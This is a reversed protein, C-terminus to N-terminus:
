LKEGKEFYRSLLEKDCYYPGCMDNEHTKIYTWSFDKGAVYIEVHAELTHSNTNVPDLTFSEKSGFPEIYIASDKRRGKIKDFAARAEDGSLYSGEPLYKWSFLHWIYPEANLIYRINKNESTNYLPAAFSKLWMKKFENLKM